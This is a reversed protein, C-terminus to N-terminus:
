KTRPFVTEQYAVWQESVLPLGVAKASLALQEYMALDQSLLEPASNPVEAANSGKSLAIPAPSNHWVENSFARWVAALPMISLTRGTVGISKQYFWPLSRLLLRGTSLMDAQVSVLSGEDSIPPSECFLVGMKGIKSLSQMASLLTDLAFLRYALHYCWTSGVTLSSFELEKSSPEDELHYISSGYIALFDEKWAELDDLVDYSTKMIQLLSAITQNTDLLPQLGDCKVIAVCIRDAINILTGMHSVSKGSSTLSTGDADVYIARDQLGLLSSTRRMILCFCMEMIRFEEIVDCFFESLHGNDSAAHMILAGIGDIHHIMDFLSANVALEFMAAVHCSLLLALLDTPDVKTQGVHVIRQRVDTLGMRYSVLSKRWFDERGEEIAILGLAITRLLDRVATQGQHYALDFSRTIWSACPAALRVQRSTSPKQTWGRPLFRFLFQDLLANTYQTELNPQHVLSLGKTSLRNVEKIKADSEKTTWARKPKQNRHRTESLSKPRKEPVWRLTIHLPNCTGNTRSDGPPSDQKEKQRQRYAKVNLRVKERRIAAKDEATLKQFQPENQRAM